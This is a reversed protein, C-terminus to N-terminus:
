QCSDQPVAIFNDLLINPNLPPTSVKGAGGNGVAILKLRPLWERFHKRIESLTLERVDRDPAACPNGLTHLHQLSPLFWLDVPIEQLQNNSLDLTHLKFLQELPRCGLNPARLSTLKNKSLDLLSLNQLKGIEAPICQLQNNALTLETLKTLSGIEVPLCSISHNSLHLQTLNCLRGIEKPLYTLRNDPVPDSNSNPQLQTDNEPKGSCSLQVLNSLNGIEAPLERLQNQDLMLQNLNALNGIEVPLGNIRNNNLILRSLSTLRGIEKPLQTLQNDSL